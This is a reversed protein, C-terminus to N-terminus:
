QTIDLEVRRNTARGAKTENSEIPTTEGKSDVSINDASAGREILLEQLMKARSLALAHNSDAAGINDTHGTLVVSSGAQLKAVLDALYLDTENSFTLSQKSNFPFHIRAHLNEEIVVEVQKAAEVVVEKAPAVYAELVDIVGNGNADMPAKYDAGVEDADAIGDGDTDANDANTGLMAEIGNSLGDRDRDAAPGDLHDTDLADIIGDADADVPNTLENGVEVGDAIGDGDTDPNKPNTGLTLEEKDTLGDHDSDVDAQIIPTTPAPTTETEATQEVGCFGKINCTYWRWSVVGWILALVLVIIVKIRM